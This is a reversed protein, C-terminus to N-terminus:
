SKAEKKKRKEEKELEKRLKKKEAEKTKEMEERLERKLNFKEEFLMAAKEDNRDVGAKDMAEYLEEEYKKKEKNYKVITEAITVGAIAAIPVFILVPMLWASQGAAAAAQPSVFTLFKGFSDSHSVVTGLYYDQTVEEWATEPCTGNPQSECSWAHLNDGRTYFTIDGTTEDKKIELVRHTDPAGLKPYYFTIVDGVKVDEVKEKRIIIGTGTNLSDPNDGEMSDTAVYLFSTGFVSGVGHNAPISQTIIMSLQVYVMFVVLVGLVIDVIRSVTKKM